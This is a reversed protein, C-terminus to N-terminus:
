PPFALPQRRTRIGWLNAGRDIWPAKGSTSRHGGRGFSGPDVPLSAPGSYEHPCPLGTAVFFFLVELLAVRPELAVRALAGLFDVELFRAAGLFATLDTFRFADPFFDAGLLLVADLRFDVGFFDVLVFDVVFFDVVFFDVM